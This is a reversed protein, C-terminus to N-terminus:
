ESTPFGKSEQVKSDRYVTITEQIMGDIELEDLGLDVAGSFYFTLPKDSTVATEKPLQIFWYYSKDSDALVKVKDHQPETFLVPIELAEAKRSGKAQQEEELDLANYTIAEKAKKLPPISQVFAIQTKEGNLTEAYYLGTLTSVKPKKVVTDSM